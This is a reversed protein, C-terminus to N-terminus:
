KLRSRAKGSCSGAGTRNEMLLQHEQHGAIYVLRPLPVVIYWRSLSCARWDGSINLWSVYVSSVALRCRLDHLLEQQQHM